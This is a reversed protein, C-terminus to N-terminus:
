RNIRRISNRVFCLRETAEYEFSGRSRRVIVYDNDRKVEQSLISYEDSLIRNTIHTLAEASIFADSPDISYQYQEIETLINIIRDGEGPYLPLARERM